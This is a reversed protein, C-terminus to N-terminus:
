KVTVTVIDSTYVKTWKGDVYAKVAFKYTKGETVKSFRVANSATDSVKDLKGGIYKCVRYKEAGDVKNWSLIDKGDKSSAKVAPKYYIKM